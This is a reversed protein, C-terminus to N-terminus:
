DNNGMNQYLRALQFLAERHDEKRQLCDNYATVADMLNGDREELYKALKFSIEAAL